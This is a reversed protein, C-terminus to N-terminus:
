AAREERIPPILSRVPPAHCLIPTATPTMPPPRTERRAAVAPVVEYDLDDAPDPALAPEPGYGSERRQHIRELSIGPAYATALKHVAAALRPDDMPWDDFVEDFFGYFVTHAVMERLPAGIEWQSDDM